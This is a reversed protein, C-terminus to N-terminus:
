HAADARFRRRAARAAFKVSPGHSLTESGYRGPAPLPGTTWPDQMSVRDLPRLAVSGTGMPIKQGSVMAGLPHTLADYDGTVSLATISKWQLEFLAQQTPPTETQPIGYRNVKSLRGESAMSQVLLGIHRPDINSGVSQVLSRICAGVGAGLGFTDEVDLTDSSSVTEWNIGPLCTLDRISMHRLAVSECQREDFMRDTEVAIRSSGIRLTSTKVCANEPPTRIVSAVSYQHVVSSKRLIFVGPPVPVNHVSRVKSLVRVLDGCPTGDRTWPRLVVVWTVDCVSSVQVTYACGDLKTRIADVLKAAVTEISVCARILTEKFLSFCWIRNDPSFADITEQGYLYRNRLLLTAVAVRLRRTDDDDGSRLLDLPDADVPSELTITRAEARELDLCVFAEIPLTRVTKTGTEAEDNAGSLSRDKHKKLGIEPVHFEHRADPFMEVTPHRPTSRDIIEGFSSIDVGGGQAHYAGLLKQTADEALSQAALIGVPEGTRSLNMVISKGIDRVVRRVFSQRLKREADRETSRIHRHFAVLERTAVLLMAEWVDPAVRRRVADTFYLSDHEGLLLAVSLEIAWADETVIDDDENETNDSSALVRHAIHTASFPIRVSTSSAACGGKPVTSQIDKEFAFAIGPGLLSRALRRKCTSFLRRTMPGLALENSFLDDPLAIIEGLAEGEEFLGPGTFGTGCSCIQVIREGSTTCPERVVAGGVQMALCRYRHGGQATTAAAAVVGERGGVAAFLGQTHSLGSSLPTHIYGRQALMDGGGSTGHSPLSPLVRQRFQITKCLPDLAADGSGCARTSEGGRFGTVYGSLREGGLTEQGHSALLQTLNGIDGKAGSRVMTGLGNEHSGLSPDAGTINSIAGRGYNLIDRIRREADPGVVGFTRSTMRSVRQVGDQMVSEVDRIARKSRATLFSDSYRVGFGRRNLFLHALLMLAHIIKGAYRPYDTIIIKMLGKSGYISKKDLVGDKFVGNVIQLSRTVMTFSITQFLMTLIDRGKIPSHDSDFRRIRINTDTKAFSLCTGLISCADAATSASVTTDPLSLLYLGVVTDQAPGGLPVGSKVSVLVSPVNAGALEFGEVAAEDTQLVHITMEDGDFDANFRKAGTLNMQFCSGPVLKVRYAMMSQKHLSPQRNFIVIDGDLLHRHVVMGDDLRNHAFVSREESSSFMVDLRFVRGSVPCSVCSAGGIEGPGRIIWDMCADRTMRTVIVERTLYAATEYPVGVEDPELADNGTIPNRAVFNVRKSEMDNRAFGKKKCIVTSISRDAHGSRPDRRMPLVGHASNDVFYCYDAQLAAAAKAADSDLEVLDAEEVSLPHSVDKDRSRRIRCVHDGIRKVDGVLRNIKKTMDNVVSLRETDGVIASPRFNPPLVGISNMILDAPSSSKSRSDNGCLGIYRWTEQSVSSLIERARTWHMPKTTLEIYKELEDCGIDTDLIADIAKRARRFKHTKAADGRKSSSNAVNEVEDDDDGEGEGADDEEDDCDDALDRKKSSSSSSARRLELAM